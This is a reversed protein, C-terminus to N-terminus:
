NPASYSKDLLSVYPYVNHFGKYAAFGFYVAGFILFSVLVCYYGMDKEEGSESRFSYIMDPIAILSLVFPYIAFRELIFHKTVFLSILFHYVASNRYISAEMCSEKASKAMRGTFVYVLIGYVAPLVAYEANNANWFYTDQYIIYNTPILPKVLVFLQDFWVYVAATALLAVVLFKRSCKKPLLFYLPWMFFLSNHVCGGILILVTFPVIKRNKLYPYALLFIAIAISQRLLNMNYALFQLTIYLYVSVWPMKSNRYIFWMAVSLLFINVVAIFLTYPCGMLCFIKCVLFFLPEYWYFRVIDGVPWGAIMEYIDRYSFYDFGIAYRCSAFVCLVLFTIALYFAVAKKEKKRDTLIYGLGTLFTVIFYYIAM